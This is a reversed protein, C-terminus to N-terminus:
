GSTEIFKEASPWIQMIIKALDSSRKEIAAEDWVDTANDLLTKNLFLNSHKGLTKRPNFTYCNETTKKSNVWSGIGYTMPGSDDLLLSKGCSYRAM